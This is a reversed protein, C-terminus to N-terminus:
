EPGKMAADIAERASRYQKRFYGNRLISVLVPDSPVDILWDLRAKDTQLRTNEEALEEILAEPTPATCAVLSEDLGPDHMRVGSELVTFTLIDKGEAEAACWRCRERAIREMVSM